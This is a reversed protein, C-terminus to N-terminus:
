NLQASAEGHLLRLLNMAGIVVAMGLVFVAFAQELRRAPLHRALRLGGAMGLIAMAVYVAAQTWLVPEGRSHGWLGAASNIVIVALSTGTARKMDLGGALTLAPVILFGGGVGLFGTLVGIGLGIPLLRLLSHSPPHVREGGPQPTARPANARQSRRWMAVGAVAMVAAFFLLLVENPVRPSLAAGLHAGPIGGAGISLAARTAVRGQRASLVAGFLSATGVIALSLPVAEHADMGAFHVLLPLTLIGGGAGLLGLCLGVLVFLM